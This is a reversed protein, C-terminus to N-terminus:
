WPKDNTKPHTRRMMEAAIFRYYAYSRSSDRPVFRRDIGHGVRAGHRAILRKTRISVLLYDRQVDGLKRHGDVPRQLAANGFM